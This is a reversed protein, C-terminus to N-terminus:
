PFINIDLDESIIPLPAFLQPVIWIIVAHQNVQLLAVLATFIIFREFKVYNLLSRALIVVSRGWGHFLFASFNFPLSGVVSPFITMLLAMSVLVVLGTSFLSQTM